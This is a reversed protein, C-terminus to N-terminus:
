AIHSAITIHKQGYDRIFEALAKVDKYKDACSALKMLMPFNFGSVMEVKGGKLLPLCMNAPTSGFVDSLILVGDYTEREQVAACIQRGIEDKSMGLEVSVSTMFDREPFMERLAKLMERGIGAHTVLVVAIMAVEVGFVEM